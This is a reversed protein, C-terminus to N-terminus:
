LEVAGDLATNVIVFLGKQVNNSSMNEFDDLIMSMESNNTIVKYRKDPNDLIRRVIRGDVGFDDFEHEIEDLTFYETALRVVTGPLMIDDYENSYVERSM